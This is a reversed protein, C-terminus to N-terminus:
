FRTTMSLRVARPSGPTINNNSHANAYYRADFLNEVNMQARLASTLDFFVAGDVKTFGPLVVRNDTAAFMADRHIVGLAASWRLSVQYRTWLSLSHAPVQALDAGAQAAATISRTITGAQYAYGATLNWDRTLAGNLEVELGNTRQADVLLSRAPDSPDPVAVNGRDLRYVAASMGLGPTIDWKAGVEYNRFQEPELAQNSVSLSSLQDGARPVFTRSYSGYLSLPVMPQYILGLRPSVLRDRSSFDAGSRENRFDMDFRDLRLGVVAQWQASLQVQDQAYIAAIRAVGHNDADTASQRFTVPQPTGPATLPTQVSTVSPGISSFYGTARFNDTVQRGLEAGVMLTHELGGLRPKLILYTQSFLNRRDTANNYASITVLTGAANVAGPFVNQYFKDYIGYSTRNRLTARPHFRHEIVSALLNVTAETPSQAPDGFFTSADTAVPRGEFSPVGRDAIREDHFYEYSARIMTAPGLRFAISPQVGIREIGVGSRYSESDEFMGTVRGAVRDNLAAGVDATVRRNNWSGLQLSLEQSQGWDAQRTVRNIVGGAGGRGFIMANPGKLAEVRELNYVDRFYQVDDRVGDVFFDGTSANGRVIPTDRNGEGQAMTVGPMFRVVDAMGAMRQEAMLERTVVSVAQPIERLPTPTRTASSVATVRSATGAVEVQEALGAVSLVVEILPIEAAAVTVRRTVTGFGDAAIAMSYSGATVPISFTGRSDALITMAQAGRGDLRVSVRAQPVPAGSEDLIRGHLSRESPHPTQATQASVAVPLVLLVLLLSFVSVRSRRM